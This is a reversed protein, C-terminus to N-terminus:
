IIAKMGHNKGITGQKARKFGKVKNAVKAPGM